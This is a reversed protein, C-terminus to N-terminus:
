IAIVEGLAYGPPPTLKAHQEKLAKQRVKRLLKQLQEIEEASLSSEFNVASALMVKRAPRLRKEGAATIQVETFPHGKQKPVRKILGDREMRALLETITQSKRFLRRAIEAPTLPGPCYSCFWLISAQESTLGMKALKHGWANHMANWTQGVLVSTTFAGYSFTYDYM